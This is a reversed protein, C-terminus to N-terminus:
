EQQHRAANFCCQASSGERCGSATGTSAAPLIALLSVGEPTEEMRWEMTCDDLIRSGLGRAGAARDTASDSTIALLVDREAGSLGIRVEVRTAGGHRVANSVAETFIDIVCSRLPPDEALLDAADSTLATTVECLGEWTSVLRTLAEPACAVSPEASGLTGLADILQARLRDVLSDDVDGARIAADLRLASATVAAQIPGHLARALVKNQFWQAQHLRVVRRQLGRSSDQLACVLRDRDRAFASAVSVGLSFAVTFSATGLALAGRAPVEGLGAWVVWGGAIGILVSMSAVLGMRTARRRGPLMTALILNAVALLGIVCVLMVAYVPIGPRYAVAAAITEVGLFAATLLPRFPRGTAARDLVDPWSVTVSPTAALAADSPREHALQHSLPRVVDAATHQLVELSREADAADLRSLEALLVEQVRALAEDNRQDYELNLAAVSAALEREVAALEGIQRRRERLGTAVYAAVIFVLGVNLVAGIFRQSWRVEEVGLLGATVAGIVVARLMLGVVAASLVLVPRSRSPESRMVLRAVLLPAWLALQGLGLIVVRTGIPASTTTILNGLAGAALTVWFVPWSLADLSGVRRVAAPIRTM